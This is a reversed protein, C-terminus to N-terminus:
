NETPTKEARDVVILDVPLKRPELKLGLQQVSTFVTSGSGDGIDAPLRSPDGGGAAAAPRSPINMGAVRAVNRLEEMSVDLSVEYAGKLGTMDVIPRDTFRALMEVMATMTMRDSEMRMTGDQGMAIRMAGVAGAPLLVGRGQPNGSVRVTGQGTEVSFGKGSDGASPAPADPEPAAEKMKLGNKGVVLAFVSQEKNERHVALHFREALLGQLMEPVQETTAGEPLKAQINFRESSIWAPGSVQYAKVKYAMRVLDALSMFGIDVRAADVKMGIRLQGSM